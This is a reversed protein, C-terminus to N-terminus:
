ISSIPILYVDDGIASLKDTSCVIFRNGKNWKTKDLQKFGSVDGLNFNTGSKIEVLNLTANNIYVLDVENNNSDRYYYFEQNIGENIFSKKIENVAANEFLRGKLFSKKLTEDNDVGLLHCVLGTDFFYLKPRKVVRKSFSEENYSQVLYIIGTKVMASVWSKITKSDVGIDKSYTDYVLEQSTNSALLKLFNMFKVEDNINLVDKLDKEIYTNIYSSYYLSVDAETDDYLFPMYGKVIYKFIKDLRCDTNLARKNIDNLEYPFMVSENSFIESLSLPLMNIIACRGALSEEAKDLIMHRTSGTLIYMGSAAKNGKTLRVENVIREIEDFLEPAKQVEDIIIPYPNNDLFTRPSNIALNRTAVDDLSVYNYGVSVFEKYLLTSKGVQRPGTLIVVPFHKVSERIVKTLHRNIM